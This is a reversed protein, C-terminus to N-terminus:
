AWFSGPCWGLSQRAGGGHAKLGPGAWGQGVRHFALLAMNHLVPYGPSSARNAPFFEKYGSSLGTYKASIQKSDTYNVVCIRVYVHKRLVFINRPRGLSQGRPKPNPVAILREGAKARRRGWSLTSALQQM